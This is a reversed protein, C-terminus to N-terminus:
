AVGIENCDGISPCECSNLPEGNIIVAGIKYVIKTVELLAFNADVM